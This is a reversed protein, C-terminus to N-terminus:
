HTIAGTAADVHTKGFESIESCGLGSKSANIRLPGIYITKGFGLGMCDLM